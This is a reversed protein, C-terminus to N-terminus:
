QKFEKQIKEIASNKYNNITRPTVGLATAVVKVQMEEVNLMVYVSHENKTLIAQLKAAIEAHEERTAIVDYPTTDLRLASVERATKENDEDDICHAMADLSTQCKRKKALLRRQFDLARRKFLQGFYKEAHAADKPNAILCELIFHSIQEAADDLNEINGPFIGSRVAFGKALSFLRQSLIRSTLGVRTKNGIERARQFLRFVQENSIFEPNNEWDSCLLRARLDPDPLGELTLDPVQINMIEKGDKM